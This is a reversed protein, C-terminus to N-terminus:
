TATALPGRTVATLTENVDFTLARIDQVGFGRLRATHEDRFSRLTADDDFLYIGGARGEDPNETWIKWRLGPTAAILEALERFAGAQEEGWPGDLPFDIQLLRPM